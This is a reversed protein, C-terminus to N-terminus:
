GKNKMEREANEIFTKYDRTEHFLCGNGCLVSVRGNFQDDDLVGVVGCQPCELYATDKGDFNVKRMKRHCCEFVYEIAGDRLWVM